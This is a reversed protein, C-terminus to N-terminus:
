PTVIGIIDPEAGKGDWKVHVRVYLGKGVDAFTANTPASFTCTASNCPGGLPVDRIFAQIETGTIPTLVVTTADADVKVNLDFEGHTQGRAMSAFYQSAGPLYEVDSAKVAPTTGLGIKGWADSGDPGYCVRLNGSLGTTMNVTATGGAVTATVVQGYNNAVSLIETQSLVPFTAQTNAREAAPVALDTCTVASHGPQGMVAAGNGLGASLDVPAAAPAPQVNAPQAAAPPQYGGPAAAAIGVAGAVLVTVIIGALFAPVRGLTKKLANM